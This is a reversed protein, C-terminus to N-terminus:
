FNVSNKFKEIRNNNHELKYKKSAILVGHTMEAIRSFFNMFGRMYHELGDSGFRIPKNHKKQLIVGGM